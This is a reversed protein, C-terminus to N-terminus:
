RRGVMDGVVRMAWEAIADVGPGFILFLVIAALFIIVALRGLQIVFRLTILLIALVVLALLVVIAFVVGDGQVLATIGTNIEEVNRTTIDVM